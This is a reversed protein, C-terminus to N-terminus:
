LPGFGASPKGISKIANLLENVKKETLKYEANEVSIVEEKPSEPVFVPGRNFDYIWGGPVRTVRFYAEYCQTGCEMEILEKETM